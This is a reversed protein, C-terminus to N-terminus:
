PAASLDAAARVARNFRAADDPTTLVADRMVVRGAFDQEVYLRFFRSQTWPEDHLYGLEVRAANRLDDSMEAWHHISVAARALMPAAERPGTARSLRLMPALAAGSAGTEDELYALLSWPLPRNPAAALSARLAAIADPARGQRMLLRAHDQQLLGDSPLWVAAREYAHVADGLPGAEIQAGAALAPPVVSSWPAIAAYAAIRPVAIAIAAFGVCASILPPLFRGAGRGHMDTRMITATAAMIIVAMAMAM